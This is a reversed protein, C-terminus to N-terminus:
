RLLRIIRECYFSGHLMPRRQHIETLFAILLCINLNGFVIRNIMVVDVPVKRWANAKAQM